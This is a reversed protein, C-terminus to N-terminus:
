GERKGGRKGRPARKEAAPGNGGQFPGEEGVAVPRPEAAPSKQPLADPVSKVSAQRRRRVSSCEANPSASLVTDMTSVTPVPINSM